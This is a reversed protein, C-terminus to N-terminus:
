NPSKQRYDCLSDGAENSSIWPFHLSFSWFKAQITVALKSDIVISKIKSQLSKIVFEYWFQVHVEIVVHWIAPFQGKHSLPLGNTVSSSGEVIAPKLLTQSDEKYGDKKKSASKYQWQWSM